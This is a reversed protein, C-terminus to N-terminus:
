FALKHSFICYSLKITTAFPINTSQCHRNAWICVKTLHCHRWWYKHIIQEPKFHFIFNFQFSCLLDIYIFQFLANTIYKRRICNFIYFHVSVCLADELDFWNFNNETLFTSNLQIRNNKALINHMDLLNPILNSLM